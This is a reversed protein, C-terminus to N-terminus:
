AVERWSRMALDVRDWARRILAEDPVSVAAAHELARCAELLELDDVVAASNALFHASRKVRPADLAQVADHVAQWQNDADAKFLAVLREHSRTGSPEFPTGSDRGEGGEGAESSSAGAGSTGGTRGKWEIRYM